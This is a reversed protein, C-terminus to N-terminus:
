SATSGAASTAPSSASRARRPADLDAGGRRRRRALHAGRLAGRLARRPGARRHRALAREVAVALNQAASTSFSSAANPDQPALFPGFIAMILSSSRAARLRDARPAHAHARALAAGPAGARAAHGRRPHPARGRGADHSVVSMRHAGAPRPARLAPRRRPQAVIVIASTVLYLGQLMPFDKDQIAQITRSARHRAVLVAGRRHDRRRPRLRPQARDPDRDAAAREPVIHRRRVALPRLGIARATLVHDADM